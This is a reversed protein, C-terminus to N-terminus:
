VVDAGDAGHAVDAQPEHVAHRAQLVEEDSLSGAEGFMAPGAGLSSLPSDMQSLFPRRARGSFDPDRFITFVQRVEITGFVPWRPAM